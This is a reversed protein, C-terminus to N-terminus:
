EGPHMETISIIRSSRRWHETGAPDVPDDFWVLSTSGVQPWLDVRSIPMARSDMVFSGSLSSRGPLRTYTMADLDWEHRSNQTVVLWRGAMGPSVRDVHRQSQCIVGADTPRWPPPAPTV